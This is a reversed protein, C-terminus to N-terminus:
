GMINSHRKNMNNVVFNDGVFKVKDNNRLIVKVNDDNYINFGSGQEWHIVRSNDFKIVREGNGNIFTREVDGLRVSFRVKVEDDGEGITGQVAVYGRASFRTDEGDNNTFQAFSIQGYPFRGTEQIDDTGYTADGHNLSHYERISIAASVSAVSLIGMFLLLALIGLKRM